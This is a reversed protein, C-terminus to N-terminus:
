ERELEEVADWVDDARLGLWPDDAPTLFLEAYVWTNLEDLTLPSGEAREAFFAHVRAHLTFSNRYGDTTAIQALTLALTEAHADRTKLRILATSGESPETRRAEVSALESWRVRDPLADAPTRRIADMLPAEIQAKGITLLMADFASPAANAPGESSLIAEFAPLSETFSRRVEWQRRTEDFRARHSQALCASRTRGEPGACTRWTERASALAILFQPASYLGPIADVVRGREDLVYHVSNGTITREMTRGDGMDITIRPAPRESQWHLVYDSALRAAVSADAYLVTRFYRSNACSLEEDLRGLLRLSLVPVGRRTAEALAEDRDTHWYLGSAHGDRQASVVDVAHRLRDHLPTLLDLEASRLTALPEAHVRLLAAHGEPGAARLADIAPTALAADADVARLALADLDLSSADIPTSTSESVGPEACALAALAAGLALVGLTLALLPTRSLRALSHESRKTEM